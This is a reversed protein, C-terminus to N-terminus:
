EKLEIRLISCLNRVDQRTHLIIRMNEKWKWDNRDVGHIMMGSNGHGITMVSTLGIHSEFGISNLWDRTIVILGEDVPSEGKMLSNIRRHASEIVRREEDNCKDFEDQRKLIETLVGNIRVIHADLESNKSVLFDSLGDLKRTLEGCRQHASEIAESTATRRQDLDDLRKNTAIMFDSITVGDSGSLKELYDLRKMIANTREQYDKAYVDTREVLLEELAGLTEVSCDCTLERLRRDLSAAYAKVAIASVADNIEFPPSDEVSKSERELENMRRELFHPVHMETGDVTVSSWSAGWNASKDNRLHLMKDDGLSWGRALAIRVANTTAESAAPFGVKPKCAELFSELETIARQHPNIDGNYQSYRKLERLRLEVALIVCEPIKMTESTM